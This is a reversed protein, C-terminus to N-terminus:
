KLRLWPNIHDSLSVTRGDTRRDWWVRYSKLRTRNNKTRLDRPVTLNVSEPVGDFNGGVTITAYLLMDLLNCQSEANQMGTNMTREGCFKSPM